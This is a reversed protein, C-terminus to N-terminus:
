ILICECKKIFPFVQAVHTQLDCVDVILPSDKFSVRPVLGIAAAEELLHFSRPDYEGFGELLSSVNPGNSVDFQLGLSEILKNRLLKDSPFKMCGLVQSLADVKPKVNASITEHYVMLALSTWKNSIQPKGSDFNVTINGLSCEKDYRQLCLGTLCGCLTSTIAVKSAKAEEFLDFAMEAEDKKECAIILVSYTIDNPQVGVKKMEDIIAISKLIQGDECLSTILANMMSVTPIIKRSKIEEFLQLARGWDKANCCAGMLSSYSINGVRIGEVRAQHMIEFAEEIKGAHGAVDILTSLFMEDPQIGKSKMDNYIELAFQLDGNLSCSRIAITYVEVTGRINYEDLMKYVERARDVQGAQICTKILAGVTVHDPLIPKPENLMESLVDFARDIAGSEGCATILANYIVRDPQVNKSRLIGYAGFAKAVQGAKACGDILAGYTNVTPEVGATVMEHFVEFMADVKGSKAFVSILTTYLKCDPQLGAEKLMLMVQYAGDFDESSACVSLLMNFTSMRPYRILKGFRIAVEAAKRSKCANFFSAHHIKDMNLLGERDVSQLLDVCDRLRGDKLLRSYTYLYAPRDRNGSQIKNTRPFKTFKGNSTNPSSHSGENRKLQHSREKSPPGEKMCVVTTRGHKYESRGHSSGEAMSVAFQIANKSILSKSIAGMEFEEKVSSKFIEESTEGQIDKVSIDKVSLAVSTSNSDLATKPFEFTDAETHIKKVDDIHIEHNTIPELDQTISESNEITKSLEEVEVSSIHSRQDVYYLYVLRIAAAAAAAAAIATFYRAVISDQLSCRPIRTRFGSKKCNYRSRLRPPRSGCLLERRTFSPSFSVPSSSSAPTPFSSSILSKSKPCFSLGM